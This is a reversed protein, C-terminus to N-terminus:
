SHVLFSYSHGIQQIIMLKQKVSLQTYTLLNIDENFEKSLMRKSKLQTTFYKLEYLLSLFYGYTLYTMKTQDNDNEENNDKEKVILENDNITLAPIESNFILVHEIERLKRIIKQRLTSLDFKRQKLVRNAIINKTSITIFTILLLAPITALLGEGDVKVKQVQILIGKILDGLLASRIPRNLEQQYNKMVVNMDENRARENLTSLFEDVTTNNIQALSDAHQRGYEELMEELIKKSNTYNLQSNEYAAQSSRSEFTSAYITKLPLILHESIFFKLSDYTTYIYNIIQQRNTYVKFLTYFGIATFCVYFPLYRKIHTPKYYLHVTDIWRLKFEDFSNLMQSYVEIVDSLDSHSNYNVSTNDFLIKYLENTSNMILDLNIQEQQELNNITYALHGIINSLYYEQKTLFKIKEIIRIDDRNKDFWFTTKIQDFIGIENSENQKWYHLHQKLHYIHDLFIECILKHTHISLLLLYNILGRYYLDNNTSIINLDQISKISILLQERTLQTRYIPLKNTLCSSLRNIEHSLTKCWLNNISSQLRQQLDDLRKEM